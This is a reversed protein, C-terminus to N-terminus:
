HSRFVQSQMEVAAVAVVDANDAVVVVATVADVVVAAAAAFVAGWQPHSSYQATPVTLVVVVANADVLM